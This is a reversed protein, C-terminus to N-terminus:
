FATEPRETTEDNALWLKRFHERAITTASVAKEIFKRTLQTPIVMGDMASLRCKARM